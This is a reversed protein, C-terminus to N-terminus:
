EESERCPKIHEYWGDPPETWGQSVCYQKVLSSAQQASLLNAFDQQTLLWGMFAYVAGAEGITGEPM